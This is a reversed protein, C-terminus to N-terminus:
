SGSEGAFFGVDNEMLLLRTFSDDIISARTPSFVCAAWQFRM